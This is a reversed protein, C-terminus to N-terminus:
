IEAFLELLEDEFDATEVFGLKQEKEIRIM